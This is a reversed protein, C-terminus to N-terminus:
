SQFRTHRDEPIPVVRYEWNEANDMTEIYDLVEQETAAKYIPFLRWPADDGCDNRRREISYMIM